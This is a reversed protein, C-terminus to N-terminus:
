QNDFQYIEPLRFIDRFGFWYGSYSKATKLRQGTRPGEIAEGFVNWKNDEQDKM